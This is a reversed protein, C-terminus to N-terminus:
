CVEIRPRWATPSSYLRLRRTARTQQLCSKLVPSLSTTLSRAYPAGPWSSKKVAVASLLSSRSVSFRAGETSDAISVPSIGFPTEESVPDRSDRVAGSERLNGSARKKGGKESSEKQKRVGISPPRHRTQLETDASYSM